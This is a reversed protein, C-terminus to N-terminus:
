CWWFEDGVRHAARVAPRRVAPHRALLDRILWSDFWVAGRRRSSPPDDRDIEARLRGPVRVASRTRPFALCRWVEVDLPVGTVGPLTPWPRGTQPHRPVLALAPHRAAPPRGPGYLACHKAPGEAGIVYHSLARGFVAAAEADDFVVPAGDAAVILDVVTVCIEQRCRHNWRGDADVPPVAFREHVVDTWGAVPPEPGAPVARVADPELWIAQWSSCDDVRAGVPHGCRACAVNPGGHATLGCCSGDARDLILATGIDDGPALLIWGAAGDSVWHHVPAYYGRAEAEGETLEDWPRWPPGFPDPDVAYSGLDLLAPLQVGNGIQHHAYPPFRVRSVPRTLASACHACAFLEM